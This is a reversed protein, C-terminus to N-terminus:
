GKRQIGALEQELRQRAQSLRFTVTDSPVKLTSALVEYSWGEIERLFLIERMEVPLRNLAEDLQQVRGESPLESLPPRTTGTHVTPEFPVKYFPVKYSQRDHKELWRYAAKRVIVLLWVRANDERFRKFEKLARVYAEQVVDQADEDRGVLLRALNYAADLHPLCLEEFVSLTREM